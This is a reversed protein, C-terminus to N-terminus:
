VGSGGGLAAIKHRRVVKGSERDVVLCFPLHDSTHHSYVLRGSARQSELSFKFGMLTEVEPLSMGPVV